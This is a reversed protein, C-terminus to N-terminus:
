SGRRIIALVVKAFTDEVVWCRVSCTCSFLGCQIVDKKSGLCTKLSGYDHYLHFSLLIKFVVTFDGSYIHWTVHCVLYEIYLFM